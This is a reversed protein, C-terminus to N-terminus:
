EREIRMCEILDDLHRIYFHSDANSIDSIDVNWYDIAQIIDKYSSTHFFKDIIVVENEAWCWDVLENVSVQLAYDSDLLELQTKQDAQVFANEFESVSNIIM